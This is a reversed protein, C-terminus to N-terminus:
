ASERAKQIREKALEFATIETFKGRLKSEELVQLTTDYIDEVKRATWSEDYGGDKFQAACNIVGGSNVVFDPCYLINKEEIEKYISSDSLQNNAAGCIIDCKLRQLTQTNVIQGIACPCFIDVDADYIEDLGVVEVGYKEKAKNLADQHTDTVIVKAGAKTLHEILYIGVHGVGQLSVSRKSLDEDGYRVKCAARISNFVGIATWPSPDGSGGLDLPLGSVFDTHEKVYLMDSPNTGMDEATIYGGNLSSVAKGFEKFLAERGVELHPDAIICAKGGGNDLGAISNKYTMGESLRVVDELAAEESEYMRVRCGGLSPGLATSHIAIIAKLGVEPKNVFLIQEHGYENCKEFVNSM